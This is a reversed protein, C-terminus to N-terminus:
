RTHKKHRNTSGGSSSCSTATTTTTAFCFKRFQTSASHNVLGFECLFENEAVCNILFTLADLNIHEFANTKYVIVCLEAHNETRMYVCLCLHHTCSCRFNNINQGFHIIRKFLIWNVNIFCKKRKKERRGIHIFSHIFLLHFKTRLKRQQITLLEAAVHFTKATHVCRVYNWRMEVRCM